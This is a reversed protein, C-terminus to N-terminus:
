ANPQNDDPEERHQEGDHTDHGEAAESVGASVGTWEGSGALSAAVARDLSFLTRQDKVHDEDENDHDGEGTDGIHEEGALLRQRANLFAFLSPVRVTLAVRQAGPKISM